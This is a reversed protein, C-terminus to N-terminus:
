RQCKGLRELVAGVAVVNCFINGSPGFGNTRQLGRAQERECLITHMGYSAYEVNM